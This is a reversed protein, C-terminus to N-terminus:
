EHHKRDITCEIFLTDDPIMRCSAGHYIQASTIMPTAYKSSHETYWYFKVLSEIRKLSGICVNEGMATIAILYAEHMDVHTISHM